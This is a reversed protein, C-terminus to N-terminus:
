AARRALGGSDCIDNMKQMDLRRWFNLFASSFGANKRARFKPAYSYIFRAFPPPFIFLLRRKRV